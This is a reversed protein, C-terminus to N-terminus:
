LATWNRRVASLLYGMAAPLGTAVFRKSTAVTPALLSPDSNDSHGDSSHPSTVVTHTGCAWCYIRDDSTIYGM